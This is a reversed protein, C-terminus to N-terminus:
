CPKKRSYDRSRKLIDWERKISERFPDPAHIHNFFCRMRCEGVQVMTFLKIDVLDSHVERFKKKIRDGYRALIKWDNTKNRNKLTILLANNGFLFKTVWLTAEIETKFGNKKFFENGYLEKAVSEWDNVLFLNEWLFGNENITQEIEKLYRAGEPKVIVFPKMELNKKIHRRINM